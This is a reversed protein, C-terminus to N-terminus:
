GCEKWIVDWGVLLGDCIMVIMMDAGLTSAAEALARRRGGVSDFGIKIQNSLCESRICRENSVCSVVGFHRIFSMTRRHILSSNIRKTGEGYVHVYPHVDHRTSNYWKGHRINLNVHRPFRKSPSYLSHHGLTRVQV